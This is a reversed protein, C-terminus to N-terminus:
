SCNSSVFIERSVRIEKRSMHYEIHNNIGTTYVLIANEIMVPVESAFLENKNFLVISKLIFSQRWGEGHWQIDFNFTFKVRRKLLILLMERGQIRSGLSWLDALTNLAEHRHQLM